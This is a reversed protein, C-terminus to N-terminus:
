FQVDISLGLFPYTVQVGPAFGLWPWPLSPVLESIASLVLFYIRYAHSLEESNSMFVRAVFLGGAM